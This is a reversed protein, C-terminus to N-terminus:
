ACRFRPVELFVDEFILSLLEFLCKLVIILNRELIFVCSVGKSFNFTRTKKFIKFIFLKIKKNYGNNNM